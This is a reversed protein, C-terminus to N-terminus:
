TDAMGERHSTTDTGMWNNKQPLRPLERLPPPFM